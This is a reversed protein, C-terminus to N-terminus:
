TMDAQGGEKLAVRQDSQSWGGAGKAQNHVHRGSGHVSDTAVAEQDTGWHQKIDQNLHQVSLWALDIEEVDIHQWYKLAVHWWVFEQTHKHNNYVIM